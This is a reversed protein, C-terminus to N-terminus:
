GRRRWALLWAAAYLAACAPHHLRNDIVSQASLAVLLQKEPGPPAFWLGIAALYLVLFGVAVGREVFLQLVDSHAKTILYGDVGIAWNGAGLGEPHRVVDRVAAKWIHIRVSDNDTRPKWAYGLITAAVALGVALLLRRRAGAAWGVIAGVWAARNASLVLVAAGAGRLWGVNSLFLLPVVCYASYGYHPPLLGTMTGIHYGHPAGTWLAAAAVVMSSLGVLERLSM